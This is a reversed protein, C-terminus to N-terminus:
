AGQGPGQGPSLETERPVLWNALWPVAMSLGTGVLGPAAYRRLSAPLLPWVRNVVAVWPVASVIGAVLALWTRPKAPERQGAKQRFTGTGPKSRRRWLMLGAAGAFAMAVLVKPTPLLRSPQLREQVSARLTAAGRWLREERAVLHLEARHIREDLSAKSTDAPPTNPM